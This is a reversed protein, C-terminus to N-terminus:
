FETVSIFVYKNNQSRVLRSTVSVENAPVHSLKLSHLAWQTETPQLLKINTKQKDYKFIKSLKTMQTQKDDISKRKEDGSENLKEVNAVFCHFTM